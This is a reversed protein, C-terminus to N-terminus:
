SPIVRKKSLTTTTMGCLVMAAGPRSGDKQTFFKVLASVRQEVTLMIARITSM